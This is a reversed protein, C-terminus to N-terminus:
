NARGATPPNSIPRFIGASQLQAMVAQLKGMMDVMAPLPMVVRCAMVARGTLAAPPSPDDLRNVAFELKAIMGEVNVRWM